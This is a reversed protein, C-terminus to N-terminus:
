SDKFLKLTFKNRHWCESVLEDCKNLLVNPDATAILIKECICIVSEHDAFM